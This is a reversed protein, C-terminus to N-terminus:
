EVINDGKSEKSKNIEVGFKNTLDQMRLTEEM